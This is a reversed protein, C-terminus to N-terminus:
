RSLALRRHQYWCVSIPAKWWKQMKATAKLFESTAALNAVVVDMKDHDIRSHM